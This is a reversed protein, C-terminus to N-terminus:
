VMGNEEEEEAEEDDEEEEDDEDDDEVHSVGGLETIEVCEGGVEFPRLTDGGVPTLTFGVSVVGGSDSDADDDGAM